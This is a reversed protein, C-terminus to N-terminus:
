ARIISAEDMEILRYVFGNSVYTGALWATCCFLVAVEAGLVSKMRVAASGHAAGAVLM